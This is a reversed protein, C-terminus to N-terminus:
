AVACGAANPDTLDGVAAHVPLVGAFLLALRNEGFQRPLYADRRRADAL